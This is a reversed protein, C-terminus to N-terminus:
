ALIRKLTVSLIRGCRLLLHSVLRIVLGLLFIPLVMFFRKKFGTRSITNLMHSYHLNGLCESFYNDNSFVKRKLRVKSCSEWGFVSGEYM